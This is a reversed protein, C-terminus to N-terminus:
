LEHATLGGIAPGIPQGYPGIPQGNGSPSIARSSAVTLHPVTPEAFVPSAVMLFAAALAIAVWSIFRIRM